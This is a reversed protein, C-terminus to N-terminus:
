MPDVEGKTMAVFDAETAQLDALGARARAGLRQWVDLARRADLATPQDQGREDLELLDAIM